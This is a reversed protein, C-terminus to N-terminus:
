ASFWLAALQQHGLVFLRVTVQLWMAPRAGQGGDGAPPAPLPPPYITGNETVTRAVFTIRARDGHGCWASYVQDNKRGTEPRVVPEDGSPRRGAAVSIGSAIVVSSDRWFSSLFCFAPSTRRTQKGATM